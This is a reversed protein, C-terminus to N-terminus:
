ASHEMHSLFPLASRSGDLIERHTFDAWLSWSGWCWWAATSACVLWLPLLFPPAGGGIGTAQHAFGGQVASRARHPWCGRGEVRCRRLRARRGARLHGQVFSQQIFAKRHPFDPFAQTSTRYSNLVHQNLCYSYEGAPNNSKSVLVNCFGDLQEHTPSLGGIWPVEETNIQENTPKM